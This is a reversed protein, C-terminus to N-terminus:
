HAILLSIVLRALAFVGEFVAECITDEAWQQLFTKNQDPETWMDFDRM